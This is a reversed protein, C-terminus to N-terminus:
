EAGADSVALRGDPGETIRAGHPVDVMRGDRGQRFTSGPRIAVIRGDRGERFTHGAPIAVIRGDTGERHTSGAPIAVMRGDKGQRFSEGAPAAVLRGDRGERFTHGRPIAVVVGDTGRRMSDAESRPKPQLVTGRRFLQPSVPELRRNRLLVDGPFVCETEFDAALREEIGALPIQGLYSERDNFETFFWRTNGLAARGGDILDVEAGQVDAWIFDIVRGPLNAAMWDDLRSVAVEATRDFRLWSHNNHKPPRLSGAGYYGGEYEDERGDSMNFTATGTTAGIAMDHLTARGDKIFSRWRASARGDPEFCHITARPFTKLFINTHHGNNAGIELILPDDRGVIERIEEFSLEEARRDVM